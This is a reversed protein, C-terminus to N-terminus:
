NMNGPFVNNTDTLVVDAKLVLRDGGKTASLHSEFTNSKFLIGNGLELRMNSQAKMTVKEPLMRGFYTFDLMKGGHMKLFKCM